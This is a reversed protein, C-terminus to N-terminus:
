RPCSIGWGYSLYVLKLLKLQTIDMEEDKAKELIFNAVHSPSIVSM